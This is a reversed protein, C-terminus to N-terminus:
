VRRQVAVPINGMRPMGIYPDAFDTNDLLRGTPSGIELFEDDREPADGYNHTMAVLGRRLTHDPEVVGPISARSSSITVVDGSALGLMSLDDPHMYAPNHGRGRNVAPFNQASNIVRQVRRGILRFPFDHQAVQAPRALEASLDRMMDANGVDLRGTWGPDKPLVHERPEPFASGHVHAKVVDLPIRSGETQMVFMEDTTPPHEMDMPADVAAGYEIPHLVLPLGMRRALGYFFTWEEIVDSGSPPELIAPTYDAYSVAPGYWNPIKLFADLVTTIGPVEYPMTPAIVYDALRATSAMWPDFQVLLELSRMAEITKLQDPWAAVPNGGCSVLARVQGEGGLLIEDALVGVPPGAVTATLGHVRMEVGVGFAPRPPAAQAKHPTSPMLAVVRDVREGERLVHGCISDISLVLYNLLTTSAAFGAGVGAAVYGRKDGGFLHAARVLDGAPVDARRAVVDPTFAAVTEALHAFGDVNEDVFAHDYLGEAIIVNIMCALISLDEGPVPQLHLTARKAIDTVRPDVVILEMGARMREGLWKNPHGCAIGYYSQFPNLGILLAVDPEQWGQVPAM